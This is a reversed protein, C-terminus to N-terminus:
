SRGGWPSRSSYLTASGARGAGSGDARRPSASTPWRRPPARGSRARRVVRRRRNEDRELQRLHRLESVGQHAFTMRWFYLTSADVGPLQTIDGTLSGGAAQRQAFEVESRTYKGDKM